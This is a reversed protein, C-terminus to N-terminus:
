GFILFEKMNIRRDGNLRIVCRGEDDIQRDGNCSFHKKFAKLTRGIDLGGPLGTVTTICPHANRPQLHVRVKERQLSGPLNTADTNSKNTVFFSFYFSVLM